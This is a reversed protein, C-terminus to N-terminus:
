RWDVVDGDECVLRAIRLARIANKDIIDATNVGNKRRRRHIFERAREFWSVSCQACSM